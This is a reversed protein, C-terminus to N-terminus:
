DLYTETSAALCETGQAPLWLWGACVEGCELAPFHVRVQEPERADWVRGWWGTPAVLPSSQCVNWKGRVHWAPANIDTHWGQSALLPQVPGFPGPCGLPLTREWLVARGPSRGHHLPCQWPSWNQRAGFCSLLEIYRPSPAEGVLWGPCGM